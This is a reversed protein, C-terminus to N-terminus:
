ATPTSTATARAAAARGASGVPAFRVPVGLGEVVVDLVNPEPEHSLISGTGDGHDIALCETVLEQLEDM